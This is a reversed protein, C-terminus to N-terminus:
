SDPKVRRRDVLEKLIDMMESPTKLIRPKSLGEEMIPINSKKEMEEIFQEDEDLKNLIIYSVIKMDEFYCNVIKLLEDFFSSDEDVQYDIKGPFQEEFIKKALITLPEKSLSELSENWVRIFFLRIKRGIFIMRDNKDIDQDCLNLYFPLEIVKFFAKEVAWFIYQDDEYAQYEPLELIDNAEKIRPDEKHILIQIQDEKVQLNSNSPTQSETKNLRTYM